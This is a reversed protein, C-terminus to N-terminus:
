QSIGRRAASPVADDKLRFHMGLWGPHGTDPLTWAPCVARGGAARCAGVFAAMDPLCLGNKKCTLRVADIPM